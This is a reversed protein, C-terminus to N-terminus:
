SNIHPAKDQKGVVEPIAKVYKHILPYIESLGIFSRSDLYNDGLLPIKIRFNDKDPILAIRVKRIQSFELLWVELKNCFRLNRKLRLHVRLLYSLDRWKLEEPGLVTMIDVYSPKIRPNIFFGGPCQVTLDNNQMLSQESNLISHLLDETREGNEFRLVLPFIESNFTLKRLNDRTYVETMEQLLHGANKWDEASIM